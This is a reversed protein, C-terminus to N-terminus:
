RAPVTTTSFALAMEMRGRCRVLPEPFRWTAVADAVAQEIEQPIADGAAGADATRPAHVEVNSVSGDREVVYDVRVTGQVGSPPPTTLKPPTMAVPRRAAVCPPVFGADGDDTGAPGCASLAPCLALLAISAHRPRM